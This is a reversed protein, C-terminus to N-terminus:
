LKAKKLAVTAGTSWASWTMAQNKPWAKQFFSQSWASLTMALSIRDFRKFFITIVGM